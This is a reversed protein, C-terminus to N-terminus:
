GRLMRHLVRLFSLTAGWQEAAYLGLLTLALVLASFETTIRINSRHM